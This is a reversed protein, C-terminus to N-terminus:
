AEGRRLSADDTTPASTAAEPRGGRQRGGRQHVRRSRREPLFLLIPTGAARIARWASEMGRIDGSVTRAPACPSAPVRGDWGRELAAQVPEQLNWADGM